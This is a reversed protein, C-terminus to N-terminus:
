REMLRDIKDSIRGNHKDIHDLEKLIRHFREDSVAELAIVKESTITTADFAEEARARTNLSNNILFGLIAAVFVTVLPNAGIKDVSSLLKTM